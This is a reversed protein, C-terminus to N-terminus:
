FILPFPFIEEPPPQNLYENLRNIKNKFSNILINSSMFYISPRSKEPLQFFLVDNAGIPNNRNFKKETIKPKILVDFEVEQLKSFKLSHEIREIIIRIM